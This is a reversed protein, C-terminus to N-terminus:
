LLVSVTFPFVFHPIATPGDSEVPGDFEDSWLSRWHTGRVSWGEANMDTGYTDVSLKLICPLQEHYEYGDFVVVRATVCLWPEAAGPAPPPTWFVHVRREYFDKPMLRRECEQPTWSRITKLARAALQMEEVAVGGDERHLVRIEVQVAQLDGVHLAPELEAVWPEKFVSPPVAVWPGSEPFAPALMASVNHSIAMKGM